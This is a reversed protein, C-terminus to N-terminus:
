SHKPAQSTRVKRQRNFHTSFTDVFHCIESLASLLSWWTLYRRRVSTLLASEEPTYNSNTAGNCEDSGNEEHKRKKNKQLGRQEKRQQWKQEKEKDFLESWTKIALTSLDRNFEQIPNIFVDRDEALLVETTSERHITYGSPVARTSSTSASAQDTNMIRTHLYTTSSTSISTLNNIGVRRLIRLSHQLRAAQLM